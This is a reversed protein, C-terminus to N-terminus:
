PAQTINYINGSGNALLLSCVTATEAADEWAYGAFDFVTAPDGGDDPEVTLKENVPDWYLKQGKTFAETNLKPIDSYAGKLNASYQEGEAADTNAIGVLGGIVVLAGGTIGGVPATAYIDNGSAIFNKM